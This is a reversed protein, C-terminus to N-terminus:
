LVPRIATTKFRPQCEVTVGKLIQATSAPSDVSVNYDGPPINVIQYQGEKNSRASYSLKTAINVATVSAGVIPAGSQNTITGAVEGGFPRLGISPEESPPSATQNNDAARPAAIGRDSNQFARSQNAEPQRAQTIATGTCAWFIVFAAQIRFPAIHPFM